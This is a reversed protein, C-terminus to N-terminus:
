SCALCVPVLAELIGRKNRPKNKGKATLAHFLKGAANSDYASLRNIQKTTIAYKKGNVVAQWENYHGLIRSRRRNNAPEWLEKGGKWPQIEQRALKELSQKRKGHLSKGLYDILYMFSQM